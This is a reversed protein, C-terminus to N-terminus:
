RVIKNYIFPKCEEKRMEQINYEKLAIIQIPMLGLCDACNYITEQPYIQFYSYVRLENSTLKVATNKMLFEKQINLIIEEVELFIAQFIAIYIEISEPKNFSEKSYDLIYKIQQKPSYTPICPSFILYDTKHNRSVSVPLQVKSVDFLKIVNKCISNLMDIEKLATQNYPKGNKPKNNYEFVEFYKKINYLSILLPNVKYDANFEYLANLLTINNNKM